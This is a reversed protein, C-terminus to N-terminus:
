ERKVETEVVVDGVRGVRRQRGSDISVGEVKGVISLKYKSSNNNWIKLIQEYTMRQMSVRLVAGSDAL